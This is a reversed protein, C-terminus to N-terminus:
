LLSKRKKKWVKKKRNNVNFINKNHIVLVLIKEKKKIQPSQGYVIRQFYWQEDKLALGYLYFSM